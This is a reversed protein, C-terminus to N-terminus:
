FLNTKDAPFYLQRSISLATKKLLLAIESDPKRPIRQSPGAVVVAAVAQEERNFIPAAMATIDLDHEELDFSIGTKRIEKLQDKLIKPDTITHETLQPLKKELLNDVIQSSSHALIAKAGAAVHIPLMDGISGALRVRRPGDAIYAMVTYRGSLVELIVSEEVEDRLDDIYPKAIQVMDNKLSRSVALGLNLVAHGLKFKKTAPNKNLFGHKALILLTRSVTAKNFGLRHAIELTGLEQNHPIFVSLIQLAKEIANIKAPPTKM